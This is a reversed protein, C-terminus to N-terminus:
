QLSGRVLEEGGELHEKGKADSMRDHVERELPFVDGCAFVPPKQFLEGVGCPRFFDPQPAHAGMAEHVGASDPRDCAGEDQPGNFKDNMPCDVDGLAAASGVKM